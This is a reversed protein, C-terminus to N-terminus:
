GSTVKQRRYSRERGKGMLVVGEHVNADRHKDRCPRCRPKPQGTECVACPWLIPTLLGTADCDPCSKHKREAM